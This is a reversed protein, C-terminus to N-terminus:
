KKNGKRRPGAPIDPPRLIKAMVEADRAAVDRERLWGEVRESTPASYPDYGDAWFYKAAEALHRLLPTEHKGWPWPTSQTSVGKRADAEGTKGTQGPFQPPLELPPDLGKAWRAFDTLLVPLDYANSTAKLSGNCAHDRAIDLRSMAEVLRRDLEPDTVMPPMDYNSNEIDFEGRLRRLELRMWAALIADGPDLDCSLMVAEILTGSLRRGWTKWHEGPQPLKKSQGPFQPPLEFPPEHKEAWRAFDLLRIYDNKAPLDGVKTAVHAERLLRSFRSWRDVLDTDKSSPRPYLHEAVHIPTGTLYSMDLGILDETQPAGPDLDCALAVVQGLTGYTRESWTGWWYRVLEKKTSREDTM